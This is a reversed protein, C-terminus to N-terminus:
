LIFIIQMEGYFRKTGQKLEEGKSSHRKDFALKQRQQEKSINYQVYDGVLPMVKELRDVMDHCRMSREDEDSDRENEIIKIDKEEEETELQNTFRRFPFAFFLEAPSFKTPRTKRFRLNLLAENLYLDWDGGKEEM